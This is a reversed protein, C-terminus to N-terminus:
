KFVSNAKMPLLKSKNAIHCYEICFDDFYSKRKFIFGNRLYKFFVFYKTRKVVQFCERRKHPLMDMELLEKIVSLSPNTTTRFYITGVKFFKRRRSIKIM